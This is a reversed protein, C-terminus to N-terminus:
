DPLETLRMINNLTSGTLLERIASKGQSGLVLSGAKIEKAVNSYLKLFFPSRRLPITQVTQTRVDRNEGEKQFLVRVVM